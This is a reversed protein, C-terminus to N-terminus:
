VLRRKLIAKTKLRRLLTRLIGNRQELEVINSGSTFRMLRTGQIGIVLFVAGIILLAASGLQNSREFAVYGGAGGAVTGVIICCARELWNPPSSSPNETPLSQRESEKPADSSTM